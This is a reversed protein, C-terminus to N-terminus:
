RTRLNWERSSAPFLEFRSFRYNGPTADGVLSIKDDSASLFFLASFSSNNDISNTFVSIGNGRAFVAPVLKTTNVNIKSADDIRWALGRNSKKKKETEIRSEGGSHDKDENRTRTRLFAFRSRPLFGKDVNLEERSNALSIRSSWNLEHFFTSIHFPIAIQLLM